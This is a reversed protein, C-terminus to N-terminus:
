YDRKWRLNVGTGGLTSVESLISLSRTLSVEIRTATYGQADTALEVYVSRGIYQGAAISTKRGTATDAPLIRLRDIGLGKRVLNIPNLGGNGGRLSALAGALQLAEPASLNTVSEGFLVRSLVEDEPLAPVSTFAIQPQQATGTIDLQATFGNATTTASVNITPDPPFVGDFRLNGRSLNFRRGAFDYDGRVVEVRGTVLPATIPGRLKLNARWESELGLGSVFLRRDADVELNLLWRTPAVYVNVRRGLVHTNVERVPLVPVDIAATTGLRYRANDLQLKGSIVGGYEDTAIRINGTASATLDDRKVLEANKMALRIDMAFSNNAALDIGGTGSISGAKGVRGGFRVLELRSQTFRADLSAQDIVAGILTAEVRAGESRATGTLQPNGLVGGVDAAIAIQGRVDVGNVGALGWVAEAPGQYRLQGFVPSAFLRQILPEEGPAIPGVRLQARGEVKGGRVIVARATTATADLAANIGIDIPMSVSAIGARSLGNIRLSASGIPVGRDSVALDIAGTVRGTLDLSPWAVTLLAMSIRDLQAKFATRDGFQGSVVMKGEPTLVTVPVLSWGGSIRNLIAPGSLTIPRDDLVGSVIATIKESGLSADLHAAFPIDASGKADAVARGRGNAYTITGSAATIILDSRRLNGLTFKGDISAGNAPLRVTLRLDAEDITIPTTLAIQAQRATATIDARQLDGEAVLVAVGTLGRGAIDLRGAFPGAPTQVLTGHGTMDAFGFKAVDITLPGTGTRIIGAASTPGFSTQGQADFRWGEPSAAIRATVASLGVGVGPKALKIDIVLNDLPGAVALNFPGYARSTGNGVARLIGKAFSGTATANLGPATIRASRITISQDGAILMDANIVPLGQTLAAVAANDLRTVRIRVPGSVGTGTTTSAIRLDANVDALGLGPLVIKQAAASTTVLFAGTAPTAIVTISGGLRDSRFRVGDGTLVGNAWRLAGDVRVNTLYPNATEGLGTIRSASATLPIVLPVTGARVIGAVRLDTAISAGWGLSDASLRYDVIPDVFSGAIRATVRIERGTVRPNIAAPRLLRATVALDDLSENSFDVNGRINLDIAASSLMAIVAAKGNDFQASADIAVQPALLRGPIGVVVAGFAAAGRATFLGNTGTIAIGAIPKDGLRADLRGTWNSWSGDGTLRADLSAPLGLLAVIAGGAPAAVLADVDFKDADPNADLHLRLTDNNSTATSGLTLVDLDVLARGKHITANGGAALTRRQGSVPAELVLQEISFRGIAFDFDPFFTPSTSPLLQPLRLVRMRPAAIRRATFTKNLLDLPRWDLELRPIQAFVGKPDSLTMGHIVSVGFVSGDIRDVHVTIGLESKINPLQRAIFARGSDSDVWRIAGYVLAAVILTALVAFSLVRAIGNGPFYRRPKEDESM